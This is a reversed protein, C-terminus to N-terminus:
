WNLKSFVRDHEAKSVESSSVEEEEEALLGIREPQEHDRSRATLAVYSPLPAATSTALGLNSAM